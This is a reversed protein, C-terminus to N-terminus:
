RNGRDLLLRINLNMEAINEAMQDVADVLRNTNQNQGSLNALIADQKESTACKSDALWGFRKALIYVGIGSAGM